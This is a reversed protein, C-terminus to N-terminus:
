FGIIGSEGQLKYSSILPTMIRINQDGSCLCPLFRNIHPNPRPNRLYIACIAVSKAVGM